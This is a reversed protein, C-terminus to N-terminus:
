NGLSRSKECPDTTTWGRSKPTKPVMETDVTTYQHADYVVVEEFVVILRIKEPRLTIGPTTYYVTNYPACIMSASDQRVHEESCVCSEAEVVWTDVFQLAPVVEDGLM